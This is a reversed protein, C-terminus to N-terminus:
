SMKPVIVGSELDGSSDEISRPAESHGPPRGIGGAFSSRDAESSTRPRAVWGNYPGNLEDLKGSECSCAGADMAAASGEVGGSRDM